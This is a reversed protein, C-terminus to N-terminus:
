SSSCVIPSISTASAPLIQSLIGFLDSSRAGCVKSLSYMGYGIGIAGTASLISLGLGLRGRGECSGMYRLRVGLIIVSFVLTAIIIFIAHTHRKEHNDENASPQAPMTLSEIANSIAYGVFFGVSMLWYSPVATKDVLSSDYMAFKKLKGQDHGPVLDCTDGTARTWSIEAPYIRNMLFGLVLQMLMTYMPMIIALGATLNAHVASGTTLTFILSTATLILPLQQIGRYTYEKIGGIFGSASVLSM